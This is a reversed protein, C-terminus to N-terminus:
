LMHFSTQTSNPWLIVWLKLLEIDESCHMSINLFCLVRDVWFSFLAGAVAFFPAVPLIPIYFVTFLLLAVTNAHRQAMDVAPGSFMANAQRQNLKSMQGKKIHLKRIIISIYYTINFYYLLPQVFAVSIFNYFVDNVM